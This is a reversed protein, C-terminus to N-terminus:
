LFVGGGEGAVCLTIRTRREGGDGRGCVDVGVPRVQPQLIPPLSKPSSRSPPLPSAGMGTVQAFFSQGAGATGGATSRAGHGFSVCSLPRSKSNDNPRLIAPPRPIDGSRTRGGGTADVVGGGSGGGIGAFAPTTSASAAATATAAAATTTATAADLAAVTASSLIAHSSGELTLGSPPMTFSPFQSFEPFFMSDENQQVCARVAPLWLVVRTLGTVLGVCTARGCVRGEGGPASGALALLM